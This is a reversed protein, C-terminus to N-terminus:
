EYILKGNKREVPVLHKYYRKKRNMTELQDKKFSLRIYQLDELIVLAAIIAANYAKSNNNQMDDITQNIIKTLEKIEKYRQTTQSFNM